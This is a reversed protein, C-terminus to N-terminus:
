FRKFRTFRLFSAARGKLEKPKCKVLRVTRGTKPNTSYYSLILDQGVLKNLSIGVASQNIHLLDVLERTTFWRRNKDLFELIDQQGM